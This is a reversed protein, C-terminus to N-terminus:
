RSPLREMVLPDEFFLEWIEVTRYCHVCQQVFPFPQVVSYIEVVIHSVIESVHIFYGCLILVM